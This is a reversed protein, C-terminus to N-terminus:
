IIECVFEVNNLSTDDTLNGKWAEVQTRLGTIFGMPCVLKTFSSSWVGETSTINTEDFCILRIVNMTTEDNHGLSEMGYVFGKITNNNSCFSINSNWNGFREYSSTIRKGNKCILEIGNM